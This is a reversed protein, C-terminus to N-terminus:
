GTWNAPGILGEIPLRAGALNSPHEQSWKYLQLSSFDGSGIIEGSTSNLMTGANGWWNVSAIHKYETAFFMFLAAFSYGVTVAAYTIYNYRSWWLPFRDKILKSILGPWMYPTAYYMMNNPAWYFGGNIWVLENVNKLWRFDMIKRVILNKGQNTPNSAWRRGYPVLYRRALWFPIPTVAGILFVWKISPCIHKFFIRPGVFGLMVSANFYTRVDACTFREPNSQNCLDYETDAGTPNGIGMGDSQWTMMGAQAFSNCILCIFQVRFMSWPALGAYHGTKQSSMYSDAQIAFNTGYVKSVQLANGNHECALGIILEYLVDMGIQVYTTAYLAGVPIMFVFSLGIAFFITWVPTDTFSYYEVCAIALAVTIALAALFYYEPVEKHKRQARSFRDDFSNLAERPNLLTKSFIKFSRLIVMGHNLISYTILAPYSMFYCAYVMINGATWLPVGYKEFKTQDFKHEATLINNVEYESGNNSYLTNLNIPLYGTWRVNTYWMIMIGLASIVSGIWLNVVSFFPQVLGPLGLTIGPDFTPFPNLFALGNTGSTIAINNLDNPAIAAMWDFTSWFTILLNCIWYWGFEAWGVIWFWEYTRLKWGNANIRKSNLEETLARSLALSPLVNFWVYETPYVLFTRFIGALGFGMLNSSLTLLIAFGFAGKAEDYDYFYKNAMAIVVYQAYAVQDGVVVGISALVQEQFSFRHPDNIWFKRGKGLPIGFAPLKAMLRASYAVLMQIATSNISISPFRVEFFSALASGACGWIISLFYVRFTEYSGEYPEDIPRTVSRVQPYISWDTIIFADFKVALEWENHSLGEPPGSVLALLRERDAQDLNQDFEHYQLSSKLIEICEDLPRDDIHELIIDLDDEAITDGGFRRLVDPVDVVIGIEQKAENVGNKEGSLSSNSIPEHM